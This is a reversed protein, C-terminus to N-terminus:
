GGVAAIKEQITRECIVNRLGAPPVCDFEIGYRYKRNGVRKRVIWAILPSEDIQDDQITKIYLVLTDGVNLRKPTDICIGGLSINVVKCPNLRRFIRPRKSEDGLMFRAEIGADRIRLHARSEASKEDIEEDSPSPGYLGEAQGLEIHEVPRGSVNDPLDMQPFEQHIEQTTSM